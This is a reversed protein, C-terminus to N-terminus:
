AESEGLCLCFSVCDDVFHRSDYDHYHRDLRHQLATGRIRQVPASRRLQRHSGDAHHLSNPLHNTGLCYGVFIGSSSVSRKTYGAFNAVSLGMLVAYGGGYVALIYVAFLRGGTNSIPLQWLLLSALLSVSCTIVIMWCRADKLKMAAYPAMLEVTGIVAGAPMVLLLANFGSFGLQNIIIPIFTSVPGNIFLMTFAMSFLIWFKLDLALEKVQEVKFHTNRVGTNNERLRAVAIYKERETFGKARIPDPPMCFLIVLSWLITILGAVIYRALTLLTKWCDPIIFDASVHIAM